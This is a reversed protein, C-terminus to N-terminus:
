RPVSCVTPQGKIFVEHHCAGKYPGETIRTFEYLKEFSRTKSEKM